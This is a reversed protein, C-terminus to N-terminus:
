SLRMLHLLKKNHLVPQLNAQRLLHQLVVNHISYHFPIAVTQGGLDKLTNIHPAVTLASGSIHNWAVVKAPVQSAYRAWITMPSLVHIVNVQGSIFAEMLQAWSRLMIPKEVEIGQETFLGNAHAVLLPTADTLPLYGIRLTSHTSTNNLKSQAQLKQLSGLAGTATFLTALKLLDRRLNRTKSSPM